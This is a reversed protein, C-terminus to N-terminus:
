GADEGELDPHFIGEHVEKWPINGTHAMFFPFYYVWIVLHETHRKLGRVSCSPRKQHYGVLSM